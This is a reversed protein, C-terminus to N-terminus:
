RVREFMPGEDSPLIAAPQSGKLRLMGRSDIRGLTGAKHGWFFHVLRVRGPRDWEKPRTHTVRLTDETTETM